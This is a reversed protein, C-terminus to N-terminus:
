MVQLEMVWGGESCSEAQPHPPCAKGFSVLGAHPSDVDLPSFFFSAVPCRSSRLGLSGWPTPPNVLCHMGAGSSPLWLRSTEGDWRPGTCPAQLSSPPSPGWSGEFSGPRGHPDHAQLAPLSRTASDASRGVRNISHSDGWGQGGGTAM